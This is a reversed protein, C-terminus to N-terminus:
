TVKGYVFAVVVKTTREGMSSHECPNEQFEIGALIVGARVREDIKAFRRATVAARYVKKTKRRVEGTSRGPPKKLLAGM